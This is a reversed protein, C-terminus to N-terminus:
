LVGAVAGDDGRLAVQDGIGYKSVDARKVCLTVPITWPLGAALRGREVVSEYDARGMFGELPSFVGVAIMELDSRERLNLTISPLAGARAILADRETGTAVRNILKGGHPAIADKVESM